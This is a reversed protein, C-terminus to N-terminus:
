LCGHGKLMKVIKDASQEITETHTHLTLHSNEPEVYPADKHAGTFPNGRFKGDKLQAYMGKPDRSACEEIPCNVYVIFTDKEGCIKNVYERMKLSPSIFSALVISNEKLYSAVHTARKCNEARDEDSFGLDSSFTRRAVDGDIRHVSHLKAVLKDRVADAVTTKGSGSLGTLWVVAGRKPKVIKRGINLKSWVLEHGFYLVTKIIWDALAITTALALSGTLFYSILGLTLFAVVRWTGTKLLLRWWLEKVV